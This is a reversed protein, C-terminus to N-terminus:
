KKNIWNCFIIKSIKKLMSNFVHVKRHTYSKELHWMFCLQNYKDYNTEKWKCATWKSTMILLIEPPQKLIFINDQRYLVVTIFILYDWSWRVKIIPIVKDLYYRTNATNDETESPFFWLEEFSGNGMFFQDNRLEQTFSYWSMKMDYNWAWILSLYGSCKRHLQGWTFAM